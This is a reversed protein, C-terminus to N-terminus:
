QSNNEYQYRQIMTDLEENTFKTFPRNHKLEILDYYYWKDDKLKVIDIKQIITLKRKRISINYINIEIAETYTSQNHGFIYDVVSVRYELKSLKRQAQLYRNKNDRYEYYLENLRTRIEEHYTNDYEFNLQELENKKNIATTILEILERARINLYFTDLSGTLKIWSQKCKDLEINYKLISVSLNNILKSAKIKIALAKKMHRLELLSFTIQSQIIQKDKRLDSLKDLILYYNYAINHWQKVEIM